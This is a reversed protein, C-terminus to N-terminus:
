RTRAHGRSGTRAVCWDWLLGQDAAADRPRTWPLKHEWRRRRDLWFDGSTHAVEPAAALWVITDAGQDSSRLLPRMVRHFGPLSSRVGPTDAWGPHMAHFVVLAPDVRRAWEHTLVLQARKVRAYATTGDYEEASMELRGLDFRQSYMGGSSVTVVRGPDSRGLLPLLLSTLLFPGLLQAAVTLETGDPAVARVPTLAGANHVLADLVEFEDAFRAAAARVSDFDSMDAIIYGVDVSGSADAIAGQALRARSEDRAVFRVTAGLSALRTAAVQGLGSTAGTILVSRGRMSPPDDWRGLRSRLDYGIRSFSGVVTAELAKDAFTEVVSM